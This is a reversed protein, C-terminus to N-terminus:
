PLLIQQSLLSPLLPFRALQGQGSSNASVITDAQLLDLRPLKTMNCTIAM